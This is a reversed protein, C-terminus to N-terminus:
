MFLVKYNMPINFLKHLSDNCKQNIELYEKSRHSLEMVGLGSNHWNLLESCANEMVPLHMNSYM